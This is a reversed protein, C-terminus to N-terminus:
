VFVICVLVNLFLAENLERTFMWLAIEEAFNVDGDFEDIPLEHVAYKKYVDQRCLVSVITPLCLFLYIGIFLLGVVDEMLTNWAQWCIGGFLYAVFDM